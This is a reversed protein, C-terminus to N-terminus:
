NLWLPAMTRLTGETKEKTDSQCRGCVSCHQGEKEQHEQGQIWVSSFGFSCYSGCIVYWEPTLWICTSSTYYACISYVNYHFCVPHSLPMFRITINLLCYHNTLFVCVDTTYINWKSFTKIACSFCSLEEPEGWFSGGVNFSVATLCLFPGPHGNAPVRSPAPCLLQTPVWCSVHKQGTLQLSGAEVGLFDPRDARILTLRFYLASVPKQVRPAAATDPESHMHPRCASKNSANQKNTFASKVWVRRFNSRMKQRIGFVARQCNTKILM